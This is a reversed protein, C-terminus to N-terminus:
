FNQSEGRRIRRGLHRRAAAVVVNDKAVVFVGAGPIRLSDSIYERLEILM